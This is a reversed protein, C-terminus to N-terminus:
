GDRSWSLIAGVRRAWEQRTGKRRRPTADLEELCQLTGLLDLKALTTEDAEDIQAAEAFEPWLAPWREPHHYRVIWRLWAPDYLRHAIRAREFDLVAVIRVRDANDRGAGPDQFLVNVPALDGHAFVSPSHDDLLLSETAVAAGVRDVGAAELADSSRALWAQADRALRAPDAWTAPLGLGQTPVRALRGSLRGLESGLLRAGADSGLLGDGASGPVFRTVVLLRGPTADSAVLPPVPIGAAVAPLLRALRVRQAFARPDAPWQAVVSRGDALRVVLSRTTAWPKTVDASEVVASGTLRAVQGLLTADAAAAARVANVEPDAVRRSNM